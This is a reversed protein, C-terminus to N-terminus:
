APLEDNWDYVKDGGGDTARRSGSCFDIFTAVISYDKQKRGDSGTRETYTLRGTINVMDGKRCYKAAIEATKNTCWVTNWLTRKDQGYGDDTALDIRCYPTGDKKTGPKPDAGLRGQIIITNTM